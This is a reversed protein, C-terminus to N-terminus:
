ECKVREVIENRTNLSKRRANLFQRDATQLTISLLVTRSVRLTTPEKREKM